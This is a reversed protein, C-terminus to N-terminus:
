QNGLAQGQHVCAMISIPGPGSWPGLGLLHPDGPGAGAAQPGQDKTGPGDGNHGFMHADLAIM